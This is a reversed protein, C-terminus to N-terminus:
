NYSTNVLEDDSNTLGKSIVEVEQDDSDEIYLPEEDM